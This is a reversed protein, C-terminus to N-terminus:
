RVTSRRPKPGLSLAASAPLNGELAQLLPSPPGPSKPALTLASTPATNQSRLDTSSASRRAQLDPAIWTRALDKDGVGRCTASGVYSPVHLRLFCNNESGGDADAVDAEPTLRQDKRFDDNSLDKALGRSPKLDSNAMNPVSHVRKMLGGDPKSEPAAQAHVKESTFPNRASVSRADASTRVLQKQFNRAFDTLMRYREAHRDNFFGWNPPRLKGDAIRRLESENVLAVRLSARPRRTMDTFTATQDRPGAIAPSAKRGAKPAPRQERRTPTMVTICYWTSKFMGSTEGDLANFHVFNEGFLSSVENLCAQLIHYKEDDDLWRTVLCNRTRRRAACAARRLKEVLYRNGGLVRLLPKTFLTRKEVRGMNVLQESSILCAQILEADIEDSQGLVQLRGLYFRRRLSWWRFLGELARLGLLLLLPREHALARPGALARLLLAWLRQRIM